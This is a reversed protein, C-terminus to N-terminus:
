WLPSSVRTAQGADLAGAWRSSPQSWGPLNPSRHKPARCHQPRCKQAANGRRGARAGLVRGLLGRPEGGLADLPGEVSVLNGRMAARVALKQEIRVLNRQHAGCLAALIANDPFELTVHENAIKRVSVTGKRSPKAPSM